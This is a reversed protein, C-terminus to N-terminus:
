NWKIAQGLNKEQLVQTNTFSTGIYPRAASDYSIVWMRFVMLALCKWLLLPLNYWNVTCKVVLQSERAGNVVAAICNMACCDNKLREWNLDYHTNTNCLVFYVCACHKQTDSFTPPSFSLSFYIFLFSRPRFKDFLM